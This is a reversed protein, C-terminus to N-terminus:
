RGEEIGELDHPNPGTSPRPGFDDDKYTRNNKSRLGQYIAHVTALAAKENTLMTAKGQFYDKSPDIIYQKYSVNMKEELISEKDNAEIPVGLNIKYNDCFENFENFEIFAFNLKDLRGELSDKEWKELDNIGM